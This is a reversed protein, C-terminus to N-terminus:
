FSLPVGIWRAHLFHAFVGTAVIGIAVSSLTGAWTAGRRTPPESRIASRFVLLAWLLFAGFLVADHRSGNALLHALAWLAIALLMPHGLRAKFHNRPVYAAALLVFALLVLAAAAHKLGVAPVWLFVQPENRAQGYGWILLVFGAISLLSYIGKWAGEGM